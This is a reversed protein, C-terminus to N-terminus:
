SVLVRVPYKILVLVLTSNLDEESVSCFLSFPSM